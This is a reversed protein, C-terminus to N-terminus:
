VFVFDIREFVRRLWHLDFGRGGRVCVCVCVCVCMVCGVLGGCDGGFGREVV